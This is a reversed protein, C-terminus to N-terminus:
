TNPDAELLRNLCDQLPGLDHVVVDWIRDHEVRWYRHVILNRLGVAKAIDPIEAATEPAVRRLLSMAEGVITFLREVAAQRMDNALYDAFNCDATFRGIKDAARKADWVYRGAPDSM